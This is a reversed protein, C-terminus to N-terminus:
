DFKFSPFPQQQLRDSRRGLLFAGSALSVCVRAGSADSEGRISFQGQIVSTGDVSILTPAPSVNDLNGSVDFNSDYVNAGTEASIGFQSAEQFIGFKRDLWFIKSAHECMSGAIEKDENITLDLHDFGIMKRNLVAKKHTRRVNETYREPNNIQWHRDGCRSSCFRM